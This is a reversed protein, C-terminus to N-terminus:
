ERDGEVKIITIEVREAGPALAWDKKILGGVVLKDDSIFKGTLADLIFKDINDRDPKRTHYLPADQRLQDSYKGTRYHSKPRKFFAHWNIIIPENILEHPAYQLCKKLFIAKDNASPDYVRTIGGRSFHRHRKQAFPDGKITFKLM